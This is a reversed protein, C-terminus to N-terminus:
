RLLRPPARLTLEGPTTFEVRIRGSGDVPWNDLRRLDIASRPSSAAPLASWLVHQRSSWRGSADRWSIRVDQKSSLGPLSLFRAGPSADIEYEIYAPWTESRYHGPEVQRAHEISVVRGVVLTEADAAPSSASLTYVAGMTLAIREPETLRNMLRTRAEDDGLPRAVNIPAQEVMKMFHFYPPNIRLPDNWPRLVPDFVRTLQERTVGEERALQGVRHLAALTQKQDPQVLMWRWDNVGERNAFLTLFGTLVGIVLPRLRSRDWRRVAPIASVVSALVVCAGLLPLLHYRGAWVYLLEAETWRGQRILGARACYTLAYAPYIMAAGILVLRRDWAACPRAILALLAGLAALGLGWRLGTPFLGVLLSPRFGLLSPWLIHGPVTLAYGLGTLPEAMGHNHTRASRMLSMGSLEGALFYAALGGIAALLALAKRRRSAAPDLVARLGALPAAMLGITSCAPGLVSGAAILALARGPRAALLSAGLLAVLGGLVAYSFWAASYWWMTELALPSQAVLALAVLTSTRSRTEIRLWTGLVVLIAVWALVSAVSFGLPALRLDHGIAQWTTWSIIEFAPAVHEGFPRFLLERLPHQILDVVRIVDDGILTPYKLRRFVPVLVVLAFVLGFARGSWAALRRAAAPNTLRLRGAIELVRVFLPNTWARMAHGADGGGSGPLARPAGREIPLDIGVREEADVPFEKGDYDTPLSYAGDRDRHVTCPASRDFAEVVLSRTGATGTM